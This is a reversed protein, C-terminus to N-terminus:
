CKPRVKVERIDVGPGGLIKEAIETAEARAEEITTAQIVPLNKYEIGLGRDYRVIAVFEGIVPKKTKADQLARYVIEVAEEFSHGKAILEQLLNEM